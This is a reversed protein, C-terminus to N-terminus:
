GERTRERPVDDVTRAKHDVEPLGSNRWRSTLAIKSREPMEAVVDCDCCQMMHTGDSSVLPRWHSAHACRMELLRRKTARAWFFRWGPLHDITTPVLRVTASAGAGVGANTFGLHTQGSGMQNRKDELVRVKEELAQMKQSLELLAFAIDELLAIAIDELNHEQSSM